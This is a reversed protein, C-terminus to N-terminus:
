PFTYQDASSSLRKGCGVANNITVRSLLQLMPVSIPDDYTQRCQISAVSHRLSKSGYMHMCAILKETTQRFVMFGMGTQQDHLM